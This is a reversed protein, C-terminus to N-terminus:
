SLLHKRKRNEQSNDDEELHKTKVTHHWLGLQLGRQEVSKVPKQSPSCATNQPFCLHPQLLHLGVKEQESLCM